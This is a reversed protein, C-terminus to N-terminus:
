YYAYKYLIIKIITYSIDWSLVAIMILMIM